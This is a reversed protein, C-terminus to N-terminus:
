MAQRTLLREFADVIHQVHLNKYAVKSTNVERHVLMTPNAEFVLVKGEPLLAFDIGAYDFDLRRGIQSIASMASAGLSALPNELFRREEEIRWDHQEMDASQYHVKWSSSIALHYPFPERDVYIVRYKRYYGDTSKYDTYQTLYCSENIAVAKGKLAKMTDCLELRDGGHTALPRILLPFVLESDALVVECLTPSQMQVCPMVVVNEIDGLLAALRHRQAREVVEPPNLLPRSCIAVFQRLRDAMSVAIDPEGIANFVLDYPPLNEDESEAAYDIVYKIRCCTQTPLLIEFPINGSAKGAYLILVRRRPSGEYEIFVRQSLYARQRYIQAEVTRGTEMYIATLNMHAIAFNPDFALVLKYWHEAYPYNGQIFYATAINCLHVITDINAQATHAELIQATALHVLACLEDVQTHKIAAIARYIAPDLPSARLEAELQQLADPTNNVM